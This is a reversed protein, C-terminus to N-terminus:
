GFVRPGRILAECGGDVFLVQGTIHSNAESTLFEVVKGVVAPDGPGNLPMPTSRSLMERGEPTSVYKETLRTVFTAPAVVNLAIGEGAWEDSVATKRGWESIARKASTYLYGGQGGSALLAESIQVAREDDGDRLADTLEPLDPHVTSISSVIVARPASSKLLLPRLGEVVDRAGFYNVRLGDITPAAIGANAVVADIRGDTLEAVREPISARQAADSLDVNIEADKRAIGIVRHGAEELIDRTAKGMGMTSGTIVYTRSM